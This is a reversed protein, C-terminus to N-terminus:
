LGETCNRCINIKARNNKIANRFKNYDNNKWIQKFYMKNINGMNYNADKDFCCPVVNGNWTLVSSTWMRYCRNKLKSKIKYKGNEDKKYRSYKKITPILDVDSDLNYIQATKLKFKDVKLKKSLTKFDNIQHQNHKFVLFQLEIIPLKSNHQKKADVINKIGNIVKIFDGGQRYIVYKEQSTGDLSIILKNLGSKVIKECNEKDLYHGNTSTITYIKNKSVINIFDYIKDTIFPEGQFYLILSILNNKNQYIIKEYTEINLTGTERTLTQQGTPCQLCNLNCINTPEVSLSFPLGKVTKGGLFFYSFYSINIKLYNLIKGFSLKKIIEFTEKM